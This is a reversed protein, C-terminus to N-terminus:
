GQVAFPDVDAAAFPNVDATAPADFINAAGAKSKDRKDIVRDKNKALWAKAFAGETAGAALENATLHANATFAKDMEVVTVTKSPDTYKDQQVQIMGCAFSAGLLDMLVPKKTPVEKSQDYSWIMLQKEEPESLESLNKGVAVQCIDQVMQYGPLYHKIAPNKKDVYYNKGGKERGSTIYQTIVQSQKGTQLKFTVFKAGKESVGTFAYEITMEHIDSTLPTFGGLSDAGMAIDPSLDLDDFFSM